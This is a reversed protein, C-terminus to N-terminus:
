SIAYLSVGVDADGAGTNLINIVDGAQVTRSGPLLESNTSAFTAGAPAAATGNISVWVESGPQFSFSVIWNEYNSPVTFSANGASALTASFKADAKSAAFSNYGQVDRGFNLPM